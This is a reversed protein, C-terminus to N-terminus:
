QLAGENNLEWSIGSMVKLEAGGLVAFRWSIVNGNGKGDVRMSSGLHEM